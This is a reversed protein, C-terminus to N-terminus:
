EEFVYCNIKHSVVTCADLAVIGDDIFADHIADGKYMDNCARRINKWGWSTNWHGCVITKGDIRAGGQWMAMGNLWSAEEWDKDDCVDPNNWEERARPGDWTSTIPVWGHVFIYNEIEKYNVCSNYYKWWEDNKRMARMVEVYDARTIDIASNWTGNRIDHTRPYDDRFIMDRMLIEHNGRVLIKRENPISNIFRLVERADPGRDFLDGCSVFVHDKNNKDYGAGELAKMLEKYFGHVDAVVFYKKSM